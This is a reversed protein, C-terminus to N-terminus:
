RGRQTSQATDRKCKGGVEGYKDEKRPARPRMVKFKDEVQRGCKNEMRLARPRMIESKDAVQRGSQAALAAHNLVQRGSTEM